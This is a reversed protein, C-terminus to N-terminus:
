EATSEGEDTRMAGDEPGPEFNAPVVTLHNLGTRAPRAAMVVTAVPAVSLLNGMRM